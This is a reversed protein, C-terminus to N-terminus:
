ALGRLLGVLWKSDVSGPVSLEWGNVSKLKIAVPAQRPELRQVPVLTIPAKSSAKPPAKFKTAALQARWYDFAHVKLKERECFAVRTLGSARWAKELETWQALKKQDVAM